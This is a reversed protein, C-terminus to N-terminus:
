VPRRFPAEFSPLSTILTNEEKKKKDSMAKVKGLVYERQLQRRAEIDEATPKTRRKYILWGALIATFIILLLGNYIISYYRNKVSRCQKLTERLFYKVGPEILSPGGGEM